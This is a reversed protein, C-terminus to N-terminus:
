TAIDGGSGAGAKMLVGCIEEDAAPICKFMFYPRDMFPQSLQERKCWVSELMEEKEEDTMLCKEPDRGLKQIMYDATFNRHVVFPLGLEDRLVKQMHRQASLSRRSVEVREKRFLRDIISFVPSRCESRTKGPILLATVVKKGEGHFYYSDNAHMDYYYALVTDGAGYGMSAKFGDTLYDSFDAARIKEKDFGDDLYGCERYKGVVREFIDRPAKYFVLAKSIEFDVANSFPVSRAEDHREAKEWIVGLEPALGYKGVMSKFSEVFEQQPKLGAVSTVNWPVYHHIHLFVNFWEKEEAPSVDLGSSSSFDGIYRFVYSLRGVDAFSVPAAVPSASSGARYTLYASAYGVFADMYHQSADEEGRAGIGNDPDVGDLPPWFYDQLLALRSEFYEGYNSYAMNWGPFLCKFKFLSLQKPYISKVLDNLLGATLDPYFLFYLTLNVPNVGKGVRYKSKGTLFFEEIMKLEKAKELRGYQEKFSVYPGSNISDWLSQREAKWLEDKTKWGSRDARYEIECGKGWTLNDVTDLPYVM